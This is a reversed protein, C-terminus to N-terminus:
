KRWICVVLFIQYSDGGKTIDNNSSSDIGIQEEEISSLGTSVILSEQNQDKSHSMLGYDYIMKLNTATKNHHLLIRYFM